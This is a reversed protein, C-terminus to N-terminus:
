KVFQDIPFVCSFSFLSGEDTAAYDEASLMIKKILSSKSSGNPGVLLIFKNNYGEEIFNHLFNYIRKQTKVQGFVPPADAHERTFLKFSGNENKGFHDFMDKLYINTPRLEKQPNKEFLTMYDDFTLVSQYRGEEKNVEEMWKM